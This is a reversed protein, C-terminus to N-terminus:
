ESASLLQRFRQHLPLALVQKISRNPQHSNSDKGRGTTHGVMIWNAARDPRPRSAREGSRWGAEFTRSNM